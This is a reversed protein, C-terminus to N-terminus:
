FASFKGHVNECKEVERSFRLSPMKLFLMNHYITDAAKQIDTLIVGTLLGSDFGESIKDTLYTLYFNTYHNKELDQDM